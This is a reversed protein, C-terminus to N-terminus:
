AIGREEIRRRHREPWPWRSEVERLSFVRRLSLDIPQCWRAEDHTGPVIWSSQVRTDMPRPGGRYTQIIM